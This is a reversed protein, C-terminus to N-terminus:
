TENTRELDNAQMLYNKGNFKICFRVRSGWETMDHHISEVTRVTGIPVEKLVPKIVEVRDGIHFRYNRKSYLKHLEKKVYNHAKNLYEKDSKLLNGTSTYVEILKEVVPRYQDDDIYALAHNLKDLKKLVADDLEIENTKMMQDLLSQYPSKFPEYLDSISKGIDM